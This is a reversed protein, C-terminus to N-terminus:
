RHTSERRGTGPHRTQGDVGHRLDAMIEADSVTIKLPKVQFRNRNRPNRKM